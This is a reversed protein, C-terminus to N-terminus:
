WGATVGRDQKCITEGAQFHSNAGFLLEPAAAEDRGTTRTAALRNAAPRKTRFM